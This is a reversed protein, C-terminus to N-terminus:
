VTGFRIVTLPPRRYVLKGSYTNITWTEDEDFHADGGYQPFYAHALINGRGDFPNRDGHYVRKFLIDIDVSGYTRREFRLPTVDSWVRFAREIVDIAQSRTVDDPYDSIKYTLTTKRWKSGPLLSFFFVFILRSSICYYRQLFRGPVRVHLSQFRRATKQCIHSM